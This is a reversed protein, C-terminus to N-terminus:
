ECESGNSFYTALIQTAEDLCVAADSEAVDFVEFADVLNGLNDTYMADYYCAGDGEPYTATVFTQFYPYSSFEAWVMSGGELSCWSEQTHNAIDELVVGAWCPCELVTQTPETVIPDDVVPPSSGPVAFGARAEFKLGLDVKAQVDANHWAVCLGYLGPQYEYDPYQSNFNKDKLYNCDDANGAIASISFLGFLLAFLGLHVITRM